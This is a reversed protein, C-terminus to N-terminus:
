IKEIMDKLVKGDMDDPVPIGFYDLITPAIDMINKEELQKLPKVNKGCALIFGYTQHAGSRKDPLEGTVTGIAPSYLSNIPNEGEWRIIIDPLDNIFKGSYRDRVKIVEIVAKTGTAPNILGLFINEIQACIEDYEKGPNVMGEPERGTLNIRLAGTFDNPVMFVKSNKWNNGMILFRRTWNDWVKEPIVKKVKEIKEASVIEEVKKIADPGWRKAPSILSLLNNGSGNKSNSGLGARKLIEPILHQGSYNHGMGTNSFIIFTAEPYIKMIESISNDVEKYVELIASGCEKTIEHNYRPNTEDFLHWFYHGAWHMEAYGALLFDWSEKNLIWKLISTRIRVGKVLKQKLEKWENPDEIVKQYWGELPHHGFKSFIEKILEPPESSRKFNLGEAGWGFLQIGNFNKISHTVPIDVIASKMNADSLKKWFLPYGIEDAYKKVIRYSGNKLQRHYFGIGHKAPTVGTNISAWTAGSSIETTSMLRRWSGTNMIGSFAPLQGEKAWKLVLDIEAAELGIAIIQKKFKL